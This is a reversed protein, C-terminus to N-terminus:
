DEVAHIWDAQILNLGTINNKIFAEGLRQTIFIYNVGVSIRPMRIIDYQWAAKTLWLESQDRLHANHSCAEQYTNFTSLADFQNTEYNFNISFKTKGFDLPSPNEPLPKIVLFNYDEFIVKKHEISIDYFISDPPLNFDKLIEKVRDNFLLGDFLYTDFRMVDTIKAKVKAKLKFTDAHMRDFEIHPYSATHNLFRALYGWNKFEQNEDANTLSIIYFKM